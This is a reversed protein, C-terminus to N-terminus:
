GFLYKQTQLLWSLLLGGSFNKSECGGSPSGDLLLRLGGGGWGQIGFYWKGSYNTDSGLLLLFCGDGSPVHRIAPIKEAPPQQKDTKLNAKYGVKSACSHQGGPLHMIWAHRVM